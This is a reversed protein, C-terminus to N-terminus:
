LVRARELAAGWRAKVYQSCKRLCNLMSRHEGAVIGRGGLKTSKASSQREVGLSTSSIFFIGNQSAKSDSIHNYTIVLGFRTYEM